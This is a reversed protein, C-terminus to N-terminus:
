KEVKEVRIPTLLFTLLLGVIGMVACASFAMQYSGTRDFLYGAQFPGMAAGVTFGFGAVGFILGHSKLGFIEAVLPSESAGMGGQAFGFVCAFLYLMWVEKIAVVWFLVVAMLIFGILYIRKSGIRDAASGLIVRGLISLGGIAALIRTARTVSIGIDTAHPVIHVTVTFMCFGFCILMSFIMWFQTTCLAEKFAVGETGLKVRQEEECNNGYPMQGMLSPDRRLLQAPLIVGVFVVSGMIIFSSRWDYTSILWDAVPAVVLASIGTGALVVGSMMGRKKVFWRAVTSLLPVVAGGMGAGMILGYFMYLQWLASIQSMLFCGIGLLFGCLTLVMRPGLRDTLGGMVIGFLGEMLMSLSFAGATMARTWGFENLVPKFFVGFSFRLSYMALVIFFSAVVVIHGYFLESLGKSLQNLRRSMM